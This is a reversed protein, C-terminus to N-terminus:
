DTCNKFDHHIGHFLYPVIEQMFVFNIGVNDIELGNVPVEAFSFQQIFLIPRGPQAELRQLQTEPNQGDEGVEGEQQQWFFYKQLYM